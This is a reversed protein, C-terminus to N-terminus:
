ISLVFSLSKSSFKLWVPYLLPSVTKLAWGVEMWKDYPEFYREDLMNTMDHAMIIDYEDNTRAMQLIQDVIAKCKNESDITEFVGM